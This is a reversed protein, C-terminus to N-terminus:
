AKKKDDGSKKMGLAEAFLDLSEPDVNRAAAQVDATERGFSMKVQRDEREDEADKAM